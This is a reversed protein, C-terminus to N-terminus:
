KMNTLLKYTLSELRHAWIYILDLMENIVPTNANMGEIEDRLLDITMLIGTLPKDQEITLNSALNGRLENLTRNLFNITNGQAQSLTQIDDYQEKIRLMSRVRADLEIANIPKSIFDDAGAHLCTALDSKTNLATVVVIPVGKWKADAKIRQCVEIGDMVPMMIDLLILDTKCTELFDIGEQGSAAYHLQYDHKQTLTSSNEAGVSLLTEIVDFNDPEDDIILISSKNM